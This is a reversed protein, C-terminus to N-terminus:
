TVRQYPSDRILGYNTVVNLLDLSSTMTITTQEFPISSVVTSRNYVDLCNDWMHVFVICKEIMSPITLMLELMHIRNLTAPEISLIVDPSIRSLISLLQDDGLYKVSFVKIDQNFLLIAAISDDLISGTEICVVKLPTHNSMLM